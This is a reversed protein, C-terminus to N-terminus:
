DGFRFPLLPEHLQFAGTEVANLMNCCKRNLWFSEKRSEGPHNKIAERLAIHLHAKEYGTHYKRFEGWAYWHDPPYPQEYYVEM